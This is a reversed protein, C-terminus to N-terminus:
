YRYYDKAIAESLYRLAESICIGTAKEIDSAQGQILRSALVQTNLVDTVKVELAIRARDAPVGLLGGFIGSNIGGGGGIGARGGSVEPDFEVVAASIILDPKEPPQSDQSLRDILVFRNSNNLVSVLIKRLDESVGISAKATKLEFDAVAIRAKPGSYPPLELTAINEIKATPKIWACGALLFVIAVYIMVPFKRKM